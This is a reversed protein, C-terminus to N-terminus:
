RLAFQGEGMAKFVSNGALLVWLSAKRVDRGQAVLAELIEDIHKPGEVELMEKVAKLTNPPGAIAEALAWHGSRGSHSFSDVEPRSLTAFVHRVRWEAFDAPFVVKLAEGLQSAHWRTVSLNSLALIWAVVEMQAVKTWAKTGIRGQTDVYLRDSIFLAARVATKSVNCSAALVHPPVFERRSAVNEELQGLVKRFSSSFVFLLNGKTRITLEADPLFELGLSVLFQARGSAPLVLCGGAPLESMAHLLDDELEPLRALSNQVQRLAEVQLQRIRERTVEYEQGVRELTRNGLFRRLLINRSRSKLNASVFADYIRSDNVSSLEPPVKQGSAYPSLVPEWHVPLPLEVYRANYNIVEESDVDDDFIELNDQEQQLDNHVEAFSADVPSSTAGRKTAATATSWEGCEIQVLAMNDTRTLERFWKTLAAVATKSVQNDNPGVPLGVGSVEDLTPTAAWWVADYGLGASGPDCTELVRVSLLANVAVSLDKMEYDELRPGGDLGESVKVFAMAAPPYHSYALELAFQATRTRGFAHKVLGYDSGDRVMEAAWWLRSVANRLLGGTYRWSPVMQGDGFRASVLSSAHELAIWRWFEIASAVRRSVRLSAHIRPALWADLANKEEDTRRKAPDVCDMLEGLACLDLFEGEQGGIWQHLPARYDMLPSIDLDVDIKKPLISTIGNGYGFLSTRMNSM